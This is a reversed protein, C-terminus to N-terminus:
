RATPRQSILLTESRSPASGKRSYDGQGRAIPTLHVCLLGDRDRGLMSHNGLLTGGSQTELMDSLLLPDDGTQGAGRQAHGLCQERGELRALDEVFPM